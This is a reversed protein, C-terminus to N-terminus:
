EEKTIALFCDEIQAEKQIWVFSRNALWTGDKSKMMELCYEHKENTSNNPNKYSYDYLFYVAQGYPYQGSLTIHTAEDEISCFPRGIVLASQRKQREPTHLEAMGGNGALCVEILQDAVKKADAIETESNAPAATLVAPSIPEPTANPYSIVCNFLM